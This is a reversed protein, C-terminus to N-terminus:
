RSCILNLIFIELGQTNSRWKLVPVKPIRRYAKEGNMYTMTQSIQGWTSDRVERCTNKVHHSFFISFKIFVCSLDNTDWERMANM